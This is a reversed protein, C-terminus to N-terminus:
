ALGLERELASQMAERDASLGTWWHFGIAAQEVLMGLGNLTRYGCARADRLFATETPAIVVDAAVPSGSSASWRLPLRAEADNMGVTTAQVVVDAGPPLQWQETLLEASCACSTADAVAAAVDAARDPSRNALVIRAAGALALETAVARAAGGAGVIVAFAGTPDLIDRLSALFGRGDTNDGILLTGERKVCNVAGSVEAACTLRDLM